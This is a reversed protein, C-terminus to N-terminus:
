PYAKKLAVLARTVLHQGVAEYSNAYIQEESLTIAGGWGGEFWLFDWEGRSSNIKTGNQYVATECYYNDRGKSHPIAGATMIFAMPGVGGTGEEHGYVDCHTQLTFGQASPVRSNTVNVQSFLGTKRWANAIQTALANNLYHNNGQTYLVTAVQGPIIRPPSAPPNLQDKLWVDSYRRPSIDVSGCGTLVFNAILILGFAKLLKKM